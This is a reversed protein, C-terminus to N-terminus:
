VWIWINKKTANGVKPGPASLISLCFSVLLVNLKMATHDVTRHPKGATKEIGWRRRHKKIRDRSQPSHISVTQLPSKARAELNWFIRDGSVISTTGRGVDKTETTAWVSKSCPIGGFIELGKENRQKKGFSKMNGPYARELPSHWAVRTRALSHSAFSPQNPLLHTSLHWKSFQISFFMICWKLM